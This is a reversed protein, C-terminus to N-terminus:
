VHQYAMRRDSPNAVLSGFHLPFTTFYWHEEAAGLQYKEFKPINPHSVITETHRLFKSPYM